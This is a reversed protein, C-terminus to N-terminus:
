IAVHTAGTVPANDAVASSEDHRSEIRHGRGAALRCVEEINAPTCLRIEHAVGNGDDGRVRAHFRDENIYEAADRASVFHGLAEDCREVAAIPAFVLEDDPQRTGVLAFAALHQAFVADGRHFG